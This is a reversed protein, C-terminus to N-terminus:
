TPNIYKRPTEQMMLSDYIDRGDLANSNFLSVMKVDGYLKQKVRAQLFLVCWDRKLAKVNRLFWMIVYKIETKSWKWFTKCRTTILNTILTSTKCFEKFHLTQLRDALLTAMKSGKKQSKLYSCNIHYLTNVPLVRYNATTLRFVQNLKM